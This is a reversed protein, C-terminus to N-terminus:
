LFTTESECYKNAENKLLQADVIATASILQQFLGATRGIQWHILYQIGEFHCFLCRLCRLLNMVPLPLRQAIQDGVDVTSMVLVRALLNGAETRQEDLDARHM